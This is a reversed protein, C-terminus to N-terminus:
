FQSSLRLKTDVISLFDLAFKPCGGECRWRVV